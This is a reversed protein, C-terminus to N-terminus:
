TLKTFYCYKNGHGDNDGNKKKQVAVDGCQVVCVEERRVDFSNPCSHVAISGCNMGGVSNIDMSEDLVKHPIVSLDVDLVHLISPLLQFEFMREAGSQTGGGKLASL